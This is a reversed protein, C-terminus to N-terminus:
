NIFNLLKHTSLWFMYIKTNLIAHFRKIWCICIQLYQMFNSLLIAHNLMEKLVEYYYKSLIWKLYFSIFKKQLDDARNCIDSSIHFLYSKFLNFTIFTLPTWYYNNNRRSSYNKHIWFFQHVLHGSTNLM